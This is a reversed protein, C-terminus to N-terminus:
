EEDKKKTKGLKKNIETTNNVLTVTMMILEYVIRLLLNGFVLYLLFGAVSVGIISFSSLTVYIAGIAYTTKLIIEIFYVKFNLFEHLWALAGKFEGNNKKQIFLAYAVIGGVLALVASVIMWTGDIKPATNVVSPTYFDNYM